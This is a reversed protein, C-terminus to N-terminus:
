KQVSLQVDNFLVPAENYEAFLGRASAQFTAPTYSWLYMLYVPSMILVLCLFRGEGRRLCPAQGDSRCVGESISFYTTFM